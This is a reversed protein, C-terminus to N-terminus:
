GPPQRPAMTHGKPRKRSILWIVERPVSHKGFWDVEGVMAASPEADMDGQM